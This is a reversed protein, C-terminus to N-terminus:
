PMTSREELVDMRGLGCCWYGLCALSWAVLETAENPCDDNLATQCCVWLIGVGPISRSSAGGASHRIRHKGVDRPNGM